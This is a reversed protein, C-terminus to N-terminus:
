RQALSASAEYTHDAVNRCIALMQRSALYGSRKWLMGGFIGGVDSSVDAIREMTSADADEYGSVADLSVDIRSVGIGGVSSDVSSM